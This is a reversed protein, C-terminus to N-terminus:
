VNQSERTVSLVVPGLFKVNAFNLLLIKMVRSQLPLEAVPQQTRSSQEAGRFCYVVERHTGIPILSIKINVQM